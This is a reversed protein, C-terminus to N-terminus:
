RKLIEVDVLPVMLGSIDPADLLLELANGIDLWEGDVDHGKVICILDRAQENSMRIKIM